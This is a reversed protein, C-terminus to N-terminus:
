TNPVYHLKMENEERGNSLMRWDWSSKVEEFMQIGCGGRFM